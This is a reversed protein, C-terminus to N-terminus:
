KKAPHVKLQKGKITRHKMEELVLPGKGNLVEVYTEREQITIIGIDDSQIGNISSLTGVFDVARLKKKKGGNFYLKMIDQNLKKAKNEKLQPKKKLKIQFAKMAKKVEEKGPRPVRTIQEGIFDEIDDIYGHESPTVLTRAKGKKGARGTRGIRHVYNEKEAPVDYNIVLDIDAVDIGRGAVGTAVLYRFAGEKFRDMVDFRDEQKMGGHLKEVPYQSRLLSKELKDVEVQTQCFIICSDPNETILVKKLVDTKEDAEVEIIAHNINPRSAETSNIEIYEPLSMHRKSLEEVGYPFTASFLMTVRNAPIRAIIAEVQDIFGMNLMQDAEDIVLFRINTTDLSNKEIHDLVRGPTGTVIHNKQKLEIKQREYSQKGYVAAAKVRKFRGINIIEEKVQAALERTPTLVLAQPKNEEWIVKECLPIAYAATKGSGTQAKVIVDKEAIAVPVVKEQVNTLKKYNLLDLAKQVEKSIQIENNIQIGKSIRNEM